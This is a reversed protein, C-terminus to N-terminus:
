KLRKLISISSIQITRIEAGPYKYSRFSHKDYKAHHTQYVKWKTCLDVIFKQSCKQRKLTAIYPLIGLILIILVRSRPMIKAKYQWIKVRWKMLNIISGPMQFPILYRFLFRLFVGLFCQKKCKRAGCANRPSKIAM